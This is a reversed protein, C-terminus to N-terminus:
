FGNCIGGADGSYIEIFRCIQRENVLGYLRDKPEVSTDCAFYKGNVDCMKDFLIKDVTGSGGSGVDGMLGVQTPDMMTAYGKIGGGFENCSIELKKSPNGDECDVEGDVGCGDGVLDKWKSNVLCDNTTSPTSKCFISGTGSFQRVCDEAPNINPSYYSGYNFFPNSDHLFKMYSLYESPIYLKDSSYGEVLAAFQHGFEHSGIADYPMTDTCYELSEVEMCKDLLDRGDWIKTYGDACKVGGPDGPSKVIYIIQRNPLYCSLKVKTSHSLTEVTLEDTLLEYTITEGAVVDNESQISKEAYWFQFAQANSKFPEQSLIGFDGYVFNSAIGEFISSDEGINVFLINTKSGDQSDQGSSFGECASYEIDPIVVFNYALLLSAYGESFYYEMDHYPEPYSESTGNKYVIDFYLYYNYKGAPLSLGFNQIDDLDINEKTFEYLPETLVMDYPLIVMHADVREIENIINPSFILAYIFQYPENEILPPIANKMEIRLKEISLYDVNSGNILTASPPVTLIIQKDINKQFGTHVQQDFAGIYNSKNATLLLTKDSSFKTIDLDVNGSADTKGTAIPQMNEVQYYLITDYLAVDADPMIVGSDDVVNVKLYYKTEAKCIGDGAVYAGLEACNKQYYIYSTGECAGEMVYSKGDSFTYTYDVIGTSNINSTVTGKTFYDIGDSDTCWAEAPTVQASKNLADLACARYGAYDKAKLLPLCVKMNEWYARKQSNDLSEFTLQGKFLEPNVYNVYFSVFLGISIIIIVLMIWKFKKM